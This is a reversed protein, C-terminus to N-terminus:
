SKLSILLHGIANKLAFSKTRLSLARLSDKIDSGEEVELVTKMLEDSLVGYDAVAVTKIVKYLDMGSRLLMSMHRLAFPLNADILKARKKAISTPYKLIFFVSFIILFVSLIIPILYGLNFTIFIAFFSGILLLNTFFLIVSSM